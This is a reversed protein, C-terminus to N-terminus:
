LISKRTRKVEMNQSFWKGENGTALSQYKVKFVKLDAQSEYDVVFVKLDAQSEYDVSFVKQANITTAVFFIIAFTLLTKM